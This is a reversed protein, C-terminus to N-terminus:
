WDCRGRAKAGNCRHHENLMIAIRYLRGELVYVRIDGELVVKKEDGENVGVGGNQKEFLFTRKGLVEESRKEGVPDELVYHVAKWGVDDRADCSAGMDLLWRIVEERKHLVAVMLLTAGSIDGWGWHVFRADVALGYHVLKELTSIPGHLLAWGAISHFGNHITSLHRNSPWPPTTPLSHARYIPVYNGLSTVAKQYLRRNLLAHTYRTTLALSNLDHFTQLHDAILLLLEPPLRLIPFFSAPTPTKPRTTTEATPMEPHSDYPPAPPPVTRFKSLRRFFRIACLM